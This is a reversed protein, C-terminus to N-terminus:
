ETPTSTEGKNIRDVEKNFQELLAENEPDAQLAERAKLYNPYDSYKYKLLADQPLLLLASVCLAFGFSRQFFRKYYPLKHKKLNLFGYTMGVLLICLAAMLLFNAGEIGLTKFLLGLTSEALGVGLIFSMIFQAPSFEQLNERKLMRPLPIKNILPISFIFYLLALLSGSLLLLADTAAVLHLNLLFSGIFIALLIREFQKM